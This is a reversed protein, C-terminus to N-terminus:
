KKSLFKPTGIGTKRQLEFAKDKAKFTLPHMKTESLVIEGQGKEYATTKTKFKSENWSSKVDKSINNYHNKIMDRVDFQFIQRFMNNIILLYVESLLFLILFPVLFGVYPVESAMFLSMYFILMFPISAFLNVSLIKLNIRGYKRTPTFAYCILGIPLTALQIKLLLFRVVFGLITKFIYRALIILIGLFLAGVVAWAFYAAVSLGAFIELIPAFLINFTTQTAGFFNSISDNSIQILQIIINLFFPFVTLFAAGFLLNVVNEHSEEIVLANDPHLYLQIFNFVLFFVILAYAIIRSAAWLQHFKDNIDSSSYQSPNGGYVDVNIGIAWQIFNWIPKFIFNFVSSMSNVLYCNIKELPNKWISFSDCNTQPFVLSTSTTTTTTTTTSPNEKNYADLLFIANKSYYINPYNTIHCQHNQCNNIENISKPFYPSICSNELLYATNKCSNIKALGFDYIPDSSAQTFPIFLALFLISIILKNKM